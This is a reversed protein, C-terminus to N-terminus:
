GERVEKEGFFPIYKRRRETMFYKAYYKRVLNRHRSCFDPYARRSLECAEENYKRM